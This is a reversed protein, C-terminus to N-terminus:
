KKRAKQSVLDISQKLGNVEAGLQSLTQNIAKLKYLWNEVSKDVYQKTACDGLDVPKGINKIVKNRANLSGDELLVFTPEVCNCIKQKKFVHLGFKDVNM